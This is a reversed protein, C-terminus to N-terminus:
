QKLSFEIKCGAKPFFFIDMGTKYFNDIIMMWIDQFFCSSKYLYRKDHTAM